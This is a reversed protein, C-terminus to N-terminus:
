CAILSNCTPPLKLSGSVMNVEEHVSFEEIPRQFRELLSLQCTSCSWPFLWHTFLLSPLECQVPFHLSFSGSGERTLGLVHLSCPLSPVAGMLHVCLSTGARWVCQTPCGRHANTLLPVPVPALPLALCSQPRALGARSWSLCWMSTPLWSVLRFLRCWSFATHTCTCRWSPVRVNLGKWAFGWVPDWQCVLVLVMPLRVLISSRRPVHALLVPNPETVDTVAKGAAAPYERRVSKLHRSLWFM